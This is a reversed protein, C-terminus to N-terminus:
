RLTWHPIYRLRDTSLNRSCHKSIAHCKRLRQLLMFLVERWEQLMRGVTVFNISNASLNLQALALMAIICGAFSNLLTWPNSLFIFMTEMSICSTNSRWIRSFLFVVWFAKLPVPCLTEENAQINLSGPSRSSYVSYMKLIRDKSTM